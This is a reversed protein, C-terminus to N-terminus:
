QDSSDQELSEDVDVHKLSRRKRLWSVLRYRTPVIIEDQSGRVYGKWWGQLTIRVKRWGQLTIGVLGILLLAVADFWTINKPVINSDSDILYVDYAINSFCDNYVVTNWDSNDLSIDIRNSTCMNYIVINSDSNDLSIGIRSNTCANNAVTTHNSNQLIIGQETNNTCTNYIVINSDSNDLSIGINNSTCINNVVNNSDSDILSISEDNSTCTNDSLTNFESEYLWIGIRNNNCTNNTLTTLNTHCLLIGVPCDILTQDKVIVQSCGVLIIQGAPSSVVSGVQDQLFVLPLSNVSNDTVELQRSEIFFGCGNLTNNAITNSGSGSLLIGYHINNNCTNNAVTNNNSMVGRWIPGLEIGIRYNNCTNDSVTNSDSGYLGIGIGSNIGLFTNNAV